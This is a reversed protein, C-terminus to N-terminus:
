KKSKEGKCHMDRMMLKNFEKDATYFLYIQRASFSKKMALYFDSEIKAQVNRENYIIELSKEYQQNSCSDNMQRTASKMRGKSQALEKRYNEYLAYFAARESDKLDMRSAIYAKRQAQKKCVWEQAEKKGKCPKDSPCQMPKQAALNLTAVIALALLITKKM